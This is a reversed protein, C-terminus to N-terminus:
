SAKVLLQLTSRVVSLVATTKGGLITVTGKALFLSLRRRKNIELLTESVKGPSSILDEARIEEETAPRIVPGVESDNADLVQPKDWQEVDVTKSPLREKM